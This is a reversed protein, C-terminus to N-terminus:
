EMKKEQKKQFRKNNCKACGVNKLQEITVYYQKKGVLYEHKCKTCVYTRLTPNIDGTYLPGEYNESVLPARNPGIYLRYLTSVGGLKQAGIYENFNPLINTILCGMDILDKQVSQMESPPKQSFSLYSVGDSEKSLLQIGRSIFLKAGFRTYPPDTMFCNFQNTFEKPFTKRLDYEVFEIKVNLEENAQNIISGLNKDVDFVVIRSTPHLFQALAISTLDSDGVFAYNKYFLDFYHSMVLVRFLSTLPTAYSQDIVTNPQGRLLSYKEIIELQRSYEEVPFNFSPKTCKLCSFDKNLLNLSSLIEKGQSTVLTGREEKMCWNLKVFENRIAVGLPVPLGTRQSLKQMSSNPYREVAALFKMLGNIGEKLQVKTQVISLTNIISNREM